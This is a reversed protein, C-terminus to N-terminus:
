PSCFADVARASIAKNFKYARASRYNDTMGPSDAIGMRYYVMRNFSFFFPLLLLIIVITFITRRWYISFYTSFFIRIFPCLRYQM